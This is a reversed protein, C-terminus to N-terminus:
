QRNPASWGPLPEACSVRRRRVQLQRGALQRSLIGQVYFLQLAACPCTANGGRRSCRLHPVLRYDDVPQRGTAADRALSCCASTGCQILRAGHQSHNLGRTTLSCLETLSGRPGCRRLLVPTAVGCCCPPRVSSTAGGATTFQYESSFSYSPRRPYM